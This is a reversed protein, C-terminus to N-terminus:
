SHKSSVVVTLIIMGTPGILLISPNRSTILEAALAQQTHRFTVRDDGLLKKLDWLQSPHLLHTVPEGLPWSVPSQIDVGVADLLSALNNAHTQSILQVMDPILTKKVAEAIGIVSSMTNTSLEHGTGHDIQPRAATGTTIVQNPHSM